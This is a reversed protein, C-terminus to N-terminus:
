PWLRTVSDSGRAEGVSGTDITSTLTNRQYLTGGGAPQGTCYIMMNQYITSSCPFALGLGARESRYYSVTASGYGVTDYGYYNYAISGVPWGGGTVSNFPQYLSGSFWCGDSGTGGSAEYVQRGNYSTPANLQAQFAYATPEGGYTIDAWDNGNTTESAPTECPKSWTFSGSYGLSNSWTGSGTSCGNNYIEGNFTVSSAIACGPYSSPIPGTGTVSFTTRGNTSGSGPTRNLSGSVNYTVSPCGLGVPGTQSGTIATDGVSWNTDLSWVDGYNDTWTGNCNACPIPNPCPPTGCSSQAVVSVSAMTFCLLLQCLLAIKM